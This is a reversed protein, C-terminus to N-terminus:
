KPRTTGQERGTPAPTTSQFAGKLGAGALSVAERAKDVVAGMGFFEHTVGDFNRYTVPVGAQQLKDAYMKGESRLPDIQAAIVTAPPLGNLNPADVLSIYPSQGDQPSNLYQKFFWQMM